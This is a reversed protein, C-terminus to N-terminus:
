PKPASPKESQSEQVQHKLMLLSAQAQVAAALAHAAAVARGRNNKANESYEEKLLKKTSELVYYEEELNIGIAM